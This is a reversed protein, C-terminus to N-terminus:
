NRTVINKENSDPIGCPDKRHRKTKFYRHTETTISNSVDPVENKRTVYKGKQASVIM